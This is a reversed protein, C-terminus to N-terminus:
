CNVEASKMIYFLIKRAMWNPGLVQLKVSVVPLTTGTLMEAIFVLSRSPDGVELLFMDKEECTQFILAVMKDNLCSLKNFWFCVVRQFLWCSNIDGTFQWTKEAFNGVPESAGKFVPNTADTYFWLLELFDGTWAYWRPDISEALTVWCLVNSRM